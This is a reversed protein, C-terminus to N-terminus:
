ESSLRRRLSDLQGRVSGDYITSGIRALVGGILAPDVSYEMRVKKGALKVLESQLAIRQDETLPMASSIDARVFGLREDLAAEYAERVESLRDFRRHDILVFLFNRVKAAIGLSAAFSGIVARKRSAPVAPSLMVHRLDASERTLDEVSRLQGAVVRADLGSGPALAVDVLAHAYRTAVVSLM